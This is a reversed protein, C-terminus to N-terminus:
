GMGGAITKATLLFERGKDQRQIPAKPPWCGALIDRCGAATVLPPSPRPVMEWAPVPLAVKNPLAGRASLREATLEATLDATLEASLTPSCITLEPLFIALDLWCITGFIGLFM